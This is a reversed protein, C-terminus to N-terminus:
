IALYVSLCISLYVSLYISLPVAAPRKSRNERGIELAFARLDSGRWGIIRAPNRASKLNAEELFSLDSSETAVGRNQIRGM